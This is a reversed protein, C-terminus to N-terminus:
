VCTTEAFHFYSAPTKKASLAHKTEYVNGHSEANLDLYVMNFVSLRSDRCHKIESAYPLAVILFVQREYQFRLNM